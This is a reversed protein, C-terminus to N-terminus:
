LRCLLCSSKKLSLGSAPLWKDFKLRVVFLIRLQIILFLSGSRRQIISCLSCYSKEAVSCVIM